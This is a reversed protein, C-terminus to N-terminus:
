VGLLRREKGRSCSKSIHIETNLTEESWSWSSCYLGNRIRTTWTPAKKLFRKYSVLGGIDLFQMLFLFPSIFHPSENVFLNHYVMINSKTFLYMDFVRIKLNLFKEDYIKQEIDFQIGLHEIFNSKKLISIQNSWLVTHANVLVALTQIGSM